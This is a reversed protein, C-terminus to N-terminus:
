APQEGTTNRPSHRDSPALDRQKPLRLLSIIAVALTVGLIWFPLITGILSSNM